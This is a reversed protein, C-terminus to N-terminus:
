LFRLLRKLVDSIETQQEPTLGARDGPECRYETNTFVTALREGFGGALHQWTAPHVSQFHDREEVPRTADACFDAHSQPTPPKQGSHYGKKIAFFARQAPTLSFFAEVLGGLGDADLRRKFYKKPVYNEITRGSLLHVFAVWSTVDIQIFANPSHGPYKSDSDLIVGCRLQMSLILKGPRPWIGESLASASKVIQGKGGAHRFTLRGANYARRVEDYGLLRAMWLIFGGDTVEDEVIVSFPRALLSISGLPHIKILREVTEGSMPATDDVVVTVADSPTGRNFARLSAQVIAPLSGRPGIASALWPSSLVNRITAAEFTLRSEETAVLSAIVDLIPHWKEDNLVRTAIRIQM